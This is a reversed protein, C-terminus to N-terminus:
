YCCLIYQFEIIKKAKDHGCPNLLLMLHISIITVGCIQTFSLPKIVVYSTNFDLSSWSPFYLKLNLLLMLHISILPEVVIEFSLVSNLLLM